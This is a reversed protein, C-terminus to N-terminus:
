FYLKKSRFGRKIKVENLNERISQNLDKCCSVSLFNQQQEHVEQKGAEASKSILILLRIINVYNLRLQAESSCSM